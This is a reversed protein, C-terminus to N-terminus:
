AAQTLAVALPRHVSLLSLTAIIGLAIVRLLWTRMVYRSSRRLLALYAVRHRRDGSLRAGLPADTGASM